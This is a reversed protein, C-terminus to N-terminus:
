QINSFGRRHRSVARDFITSAGQKLLPSSSKLGASFRAIEFTSKARSNAVGASFLSRFFPETTVEIEKVQPLSNRTICGSAGRKNSRRAKGCGTFRVLSLQDKESRQLVGEGAYIRPSGGEEVRDFTMGSINMKQPPRLGMFGSEGHM